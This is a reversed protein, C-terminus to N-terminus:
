AYCCRFSSDCRLDFKIFKELYEFELKRWNTGFGELFICNCILCIGSDLIVM